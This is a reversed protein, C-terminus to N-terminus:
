KERLQFFGECWMTAGGNAAALIVVLQFWAKTLTVVSPLDANPTPSVLGGGGCQTWTVLDNSERWALTLGPPGVGVGMWFTVALKEYASCPIALQPYSGGGILSTYRPLLVVPVNRGSM